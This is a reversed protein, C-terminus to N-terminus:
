KAVRMVSAGNENVWYLSTADVAICAPFAQNSVLPTAAATATRKMIAGTATSSTWYVAAGDTVVHTPNPQGM